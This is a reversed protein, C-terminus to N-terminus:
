MNLNITLEWAEQIFQEVQLSDAINQSLISGTSCIYIIAVLLISRRM